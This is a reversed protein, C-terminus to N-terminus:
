TAAWRWILLVLSGGLLLGSTLGLGQRLRDARPAGLGRRSGALLLAAGGGAALGGLHAAHDVAPTALAGGILLVLGLVVPWSSPRAAAPARGAVVGRAFLGDLLTAMALGLLAGSAGASAAATFRWSALSAAIGSCTFTFLLGAAGQRHELWAGVVLLALLHLLLVSGSAHVLSATVLRWLEGQALAAPDKAAARLLPGSPSSVLGDVGHLVALLLALALSAWPIHAAAAAPPANM